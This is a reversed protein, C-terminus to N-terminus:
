YHFQEGNPHNLRWFHELRWLQIAIVSFNLILYASSLNYFLKFHSGFSVLSPTDAWLYVVSDWVSHLNKADKKIPVKFFNGGADGKPYKSDVRSTAHLPQHIDGLYHILLRLAESKAEDENPAYNM